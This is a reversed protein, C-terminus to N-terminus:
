QNTENDVNLLLRNYCEEIAEQKAELGADSAIRYAQSKSYGQKLAKDLTEQYVKKYVNNGEAYCAQPIVKKTPVSSSNSSQQSVKDNDQEEKKYNWSEYENGKVVVWDYCEDLLQQKEQRAAEDAIQYAQHKSFGQQLAQELKETYITKYVANAENYCAQPIIKRERKEKKQSVATQSSAESSEVSSESANQSIDSIIIQPRLEEYRGDDYLIASVESRPITKSKGNSIKYEVEADTVSKITVNDIQEGSKKVIIGAQILIPFLVFVILILRKM